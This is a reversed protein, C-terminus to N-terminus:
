AAPCSAFLLPGEGSMFAGRDPDIAFRLTAVTGRASARPRELVDELRGTRGIFPGTALAERVRVQQAAQSASDFASAFTITQGGRRDALGRGTVTPSALPGVRGVAAAAQDLVAQGGPTLSTARCGFAREQLLVTDSGALSAAVDSMARNSLVSPEDGDITALVDPVHSARDAAVVLRRGRDIALNGLTAALEPTLSGAATDDLTWVGDRDRDYGLGRLRREVADLSVSDDLRAVLAAGTPARGYAEWELDAVSWGYADQMDDAVGVLVSRTTLDRLAGTDRLTARAAAGSSDGVGLRAKIATWDTVGVDVVDAPMADLGTTLASRQDGARDSAWTAAGLSAAIVALPVVVLLLTRRVRM